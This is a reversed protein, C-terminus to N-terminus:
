NLMPIIVTISIQIEKFCVMQVPSVLVQFYNVRDSGGSFSVDHQTSISSKKFYSDYLKNSAFSQERTWFKFGANTTPFQGNEIYQQAKDGFQTRLEDFATNNWDQNLWAGMRQITLDDVGVTGTGDPRGNLQAENIYRAWTPSDPQTPALVLSGIKFNNKYDVALKGKKGNKTTILIIGYPARSGYIATSAGDKLISVNMVDNPNVDQIPREIGDVLILPSGSSNIATFGRINITPNSEPAGSPMRINLGPALGILGETLTRIPRDQLKDVNISSVADTLSGKKVKGYATVVVESLESSIEKLSIKIVILM